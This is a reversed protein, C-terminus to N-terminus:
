RHLTCRISSQMIQKGPKIYGDMKDCVEHLAAQVAKVSVEAPLIDASLM